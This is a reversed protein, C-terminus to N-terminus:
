SGRRYRLAAIREAERNVMGWFEEPTAVYLDLRFEVYHPHTERKAKTRVLLDALEERMASETQAITREESHALEETSVRHIVRAHNENMGLRPDFSDEPSDTLPLGADTPADARATWPMPGIRDGDACPRCRRDTGLVQAHHGCNRCIGGWPRFNAGPASSDLPAEGAPTSVRVWPKELSRAGGGPPLHHSDEMELTM